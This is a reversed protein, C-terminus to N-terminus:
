PSSGTPRIHRFVSIRPRFNGHCVGSTGGCRSSHDIFFFLQYLTPWLAGLKTWLARDRVESVTPDLYHLKVRLSILIWVCMEFQIRPFLFMSTYYRLLLQVNKYMLEWLSANLTTITALTAETAGVKSNLMTPLSVCLISSKNQCQIHASKWLVEEINSILLSACLDPYTVTILLCVEEYFLSSLSIIFCKLAQMKGHLFFSNSATQM